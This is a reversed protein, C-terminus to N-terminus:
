GDLVNLLVALAFCGVAASRLLWGRPGADAGRVMDAIAVLLCTVAVLALLVAALHM